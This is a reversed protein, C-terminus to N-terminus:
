KGQDKLIQEMRAGSMPVSTREQAKPKEQQNARNEKEEMGEVRKKQAKKQKDKAQITEEPMGFQRLNAKIDKIEDQTYKGLWAPVCPAKPRAPPTKEAEPPKVGM